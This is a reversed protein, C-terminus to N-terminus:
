GPLEGKLGKEVAEAMMREVEENSLGLRRGLERIAPALRKRADKGFDATYAQLANLYETLARTPDGHLYLFSAYNGIYSSNKPEIELAKQAHSEAKEFQGLDEYCGALADHVSAQLDEPIWVLLSVWAEVAEACKGSARLKVARAWTNNLKEWDEDRWTAWAAKLRQWEEDTWNGPERKM